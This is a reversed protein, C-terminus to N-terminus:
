EVVDLKRLRAAEETSFRATEGRNYLHYHAKFTVTETQAGERVGPDTLDGTTVGQRPDPENQRLVPLRPLGDADYEHEDGGLPHPTTM